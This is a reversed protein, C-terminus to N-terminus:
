AQKIGPGTLSWDVRGGGADNLQKQPAELYEWSGIIGPSQELLQPDSPCM